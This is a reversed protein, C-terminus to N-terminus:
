VFLCLCARMCTRMCVCMCTCVRMYVCVCVCACVRARAHVCVCVFVCLSWLVQFHLILTWVLGLTLKADGQEIEGSGINVLKIKCDKELFTLARQINQVHHIKMKGKERKQLAVM